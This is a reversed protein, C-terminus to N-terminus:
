QVQVVVRGAEEILQGMQEEPEELLDKVQLVVAALFVALRVWQLDVAAAEVRKGTAVM